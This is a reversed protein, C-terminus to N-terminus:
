ELIIAPKGPLAQSKKKNKANKEKVLNIDANFERKLMKLNEKFFEYEEEQSEFPPALKGPNKTLKQLHSKVEKGHKRWEKNQMSSGMIDGFKKGDKIEGLAHRVFDNKWEDAIIITIKKLDELKILNKINQIDEVVNDYCLWQLEIEESIYEENHDPWSEKSIFAEKDLSEWMEECIHPIVPSLLLVIAEKSKLFLDENPIQAKYEMLLDTFSIIENLADRIYMDGYLEDVVKIMRHLRFRIYNDFVDDTNRSKELEETILTWIKKVVKFDSEIGEDSWDMGKEPNAGHMIFFRTTDAGYQKISEIPSVINGLSKSMKASKLVYKEGCEKCIGKDPDYDGTWNGDKDHSAPLFKECKECYPHPKNIMGQTLLASFPEDFSHLGLDRSVKTFFRAYLLHLIAHEIGGIYQDVPGWYEVNEKKYPKDIDHEITTYKFFYWSSDVFTDMTDTERRADGGCKPCEVHKFSESYELPNGAKGFVIDHPLKVPLEEYPVPIVGCKECYIIPIPTGWYRQRSILWDRLRYNVTPGGKDMEELKEGIRKIATRNEIGNFEGSHDLIGDEVFARSMKDGSLKYGDFPQIVVKIPIDYKKAFEFDRQDHAPVAMVAGAGYEYVVFNGAYIPIKDGTMPNIAYKGLFVGKKETEDSMRKYRDQKMVEEYFENYEHEYETGKVWGKCWPHEAAMVMFTVGYVTDCRTTFIDLTRDEGEIDFEIITGESRGIWNKQMTKVKEPWKLDDLGELLEDAYEKIKFFWQSLFKPVVESKCRWCKGNIVQENALVSECGTCWNVMSEERYALGREYMKLFMWQNWKYYWPEISSVERRWDYSYGLRKQQSKISEINNRTTEEPHTGEKIAAIEAPLGFSDYGMPYLVNFGNMRKYRAFTDGITYNKLHGMHMKGSPYPYMELVYYKKKDPDKEVQFIKEDQWKKQWKVEIEEPKYEPM